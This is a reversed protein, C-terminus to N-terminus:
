EKKPKSPIWYYDLLFKSIEAFMYASSEWGFATTRPREIKMIIVFKPDEAPGYWAFSWTTAWVWDEYWWKYAIQATWTKGAMSYWEVKWNKAFWNDVSDVLMSTIIKASSEKIVRRVKEPKFTIVKWSPTKISKIINPKIYIWGNALVSYATALQLPTVSIWLWYSMTYMQAKSRKEYNPLQSFVEWDLTINTPEWFWFDEQYSHLLAKWIRQVIRIMWVNCSFILANNFSKFGKCQVWVNRITFNDITLEMNDQYMDYRGMEASDLWIAVTFSKMISWPEYLGSVADNQYVGAWFDNKYKYKVLLPDAVEERTALRLKLKKWDYFFEEWTLSDEVLVVKWLLDVKPNPNNVFTVKELEYVDWPNNLDYSPYTAMSLIDWTKPEMVVITWRNAKFRKVWEEITDEVKKQINRDITLTIDVWATILDNANFNISDITRWMIDKRAYIKWNTWKLKEDFYWEIWYNWRWNWDIFWIVGSALTKEPYYRSPNWTLIMFNGISDEEELVWKKIADREEKIYKEIDDSISINLKNIIPIYRITKKKLLDKLEGKDYTLYPQIKLVVDDVDKIEEPNAYINVGNVYVWFLKFSAIKEAKDPELNEWVVVNTVKTKSLKNQIEKLILDKIYAEELKFEPIELVKLFKLMNNYCDNSSKLQCIQKYVVDKLFVSLRWKDWVVEPDIALDNLSLSTALITPSSNTSAYITWRNVPIIIKWLQQKDALKQYYDHNVVTYSFVKIIIALSFICFFWFVYYERKYKDFFKILKNLISNLYDRNDKHMFFQLVFNHSFM